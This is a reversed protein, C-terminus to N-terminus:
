YGSDWGGARSNDAQKLSRIDSVKCKTKQWTFLSYAFYMDGTLEERVVCPRIMIDSGARLPKLASLVGKVVNANTSKGSTLFFTNTEKLLPYLMKPKYVWQQQPNKDPDITVKSAQTIADELGIGGSTNFLTVPSEVLNYDKKLVEVMAPLALFTDGPVYVGALSSPPNNFPYFDGATIYISEVNLEL